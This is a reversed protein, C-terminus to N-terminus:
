GDGIQGKRKGNCLDAAQFSVQGGVDVQLSGVAVRRDGADRDPWLREDPQGLREPVWLGVKLTYTNGRATEPVSFTCGLEVQGENELGPRPRGEEPLGQFEIVGNREFHCFPTVGAPLPRHITWTLPLLYRDGRQELTGVRVDYDGIVRLTGLRYRRQGDGEPLPLALRPTGTQTGVSVYVDFAGCKLNFPLALSAEQIRAEAEGPSGVPLARVDFGEDVFVGVIGGAADKLTVAPYGGPLCPAVGANRWQATFRLVGDRPVVTPWSAEVLQLRYGLRRNIRDVLDRNEDLFERPWWHISVYSAHYDEVAQLYQSGDQWNGRDRSGGYHESELIVPVHPWFAPAMAANLYANEGGQVLISDDRLTLGQQRAYEITELGRGQSAFDDNAALLTHPFHKRYLDIHRRVTDASYPRLSSAYTHGEGWVGFSGVDIFAVEPNGDYRAAAAALFHDLKALFIPDDYDPEWFPGDEVVGQGPRFNYGKAGAQQVWEPTAWRLWSECCSFRFAVQKGKAIWRQAPTDLVAWDFRGEEPELYSWPIRLYVVTLGPFDDLTDSPALRSGYHAPVNDYYHFVWGLGPNELATGTDEPRVTTREEEAAFARGFAVFWLGFLVAITLTNVNM